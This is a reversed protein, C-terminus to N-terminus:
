SRCRILLLLTVFSDWLATHFLMNDEMTTRLHLEDIIETYLNQIASMTMGYKDCLITRVAETLKIKTRTAYMTNELLRKQEYMVDYIGNYKPLELGYRNLNNSLVNYDYGRVNYGALIADPAYIFSKMSDIADDIYDGNSLRMLRERTLGNVASADAPVQKDYMFYKNIATLTNFDFQGNDKQVISFAAFSLMDATHPNTSTAEIDIVIFRM